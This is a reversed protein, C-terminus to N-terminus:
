YYSWFLQEYTVFKEDRNRLFLVTLTSIPKNIKQVNLSRVLGDSGQLLVCHTIDGKVTTHAVLRFVKSASLLTRTPAIRATFDTSTTSTSAPAVALIAIAMFIHGRHVDSTIISSRRM